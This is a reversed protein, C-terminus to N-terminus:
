SLFRWSHSLFISCDTLWMNQYYISNWRHKSDRIDWPVNLETKHMSTELFLMVTVTGDGSFEIGFM